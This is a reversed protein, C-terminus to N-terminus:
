NTEMIKKWNMKITISGFKAGVDMLKFLYIKPLM